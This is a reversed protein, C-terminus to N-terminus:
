KLNPPNQWSEVDVKGITAIRAITPNVTPMDHGNCHSKGLSRARYTVAPLNQRIKVRGSRVTVAPYALPQGFMSRIALVRWHILPRNMAFDVPYPSGTKVDISASSYPSYSKSLRVVTDKFFVV